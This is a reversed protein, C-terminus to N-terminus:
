KDGGQVFSRAICKAKGLHEVLADDRHELIQFHQDLFLCKGDPYFLRSSILIFVDDGHNPNDIFRFKAGPSLEDLKVADSEAAQEDTDGPIRADM